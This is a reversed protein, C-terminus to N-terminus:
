ENILSVSLIIDLPRTRENATGDFRITFSLNGGYSALKNGKFKLPANFYYERNEDFDSSVIVM